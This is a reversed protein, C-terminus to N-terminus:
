VYVACNEIESSDPFRFYKITETKWFCLILVCTIRHKTSMKTQFMHVSHYVDPLVKLFCSLHTLLAFFNLQMQPFVRLASPTFLLASPQSAACQLLCVCRLGMHNIVPVLHCKENRILQFSKGKKQRKWEKEENKKKSPSCIKCNKDCMERTFFLFCRTWRVLLPSDLQSSTRFPLM